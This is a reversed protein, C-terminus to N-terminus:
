MGEECHEVLPRRSNDDAFVAASSSREPYVAVQHDGDGEGNATLLVRIEGTDCLGVFVDAIRNGAKDYCGVAIETYDDGNREIVADATIGRESKGQYVLAVRDTKETNSAELVDILRALADHEADNSDGEMAIKCAQIAQSLKTDM